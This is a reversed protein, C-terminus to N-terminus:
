DTWTTSSVYTTTRDVLVEVGGVFGPAWAQTRVTVERGHERLTTPDLRLTIERQALIATRDLVNPAKDVWLNAEREFENPAPIMVVRLTVCRPESEDVCAVRGTIQAEAQWSMTRGELPHTHPVPYRYPEEMKLKRGAPALLSHTHTERYLAQRMGVDEDVPAIATIIGRLEDVSPAGPIRSVEKITRRRNATVKKVVADRNRISAGDQTLALDITVGSWADLIAVLMPDPMSVQQQTAQIVIARDSPQIRITEASMVGEPDIQGDVMQRAEQTGVGPTAHEAFSFVEAPPGPEQAWAATLLTWCCIWMM